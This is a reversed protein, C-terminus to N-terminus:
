QTPIYTACAPVKKLATLADQCLEAGALCEDVGAACEQLKAGLDTAKAKCEVAGSYFYYTLGGLVLVALVLIVILINNKGAM